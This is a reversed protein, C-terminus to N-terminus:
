RNCIINDKTGTPLLAYLCRSLQKWIHKPIHLGKITVSKNLRLDCAICNIWKTYLEITIIINM